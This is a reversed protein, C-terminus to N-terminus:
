PSSYPPDSFKLPSYTALNSDAQSVGSSSIGDTVTVGNAYFHVKNDSSVANYLVQGAGTSAFSLATQHQAHSGNENDAWIDLEPDVVPLNEM